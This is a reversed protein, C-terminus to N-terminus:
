PQRPPAMARLANLMLDRKKKPDRETTMLSLFATDIGRDLYLQIRAKLEALTGCPILDDMVRTPIAAVAGKRDGAGWAAWMPGLAETRGLWEQFARYVPVNLYGAIHRRVVLESEPGPPDLNVFLRATVEIAEPDRGAQKAAERVVAVSRPVDDPSLWNLIM